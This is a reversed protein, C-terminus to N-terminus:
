SLGLTCNTGLELWIHRLV